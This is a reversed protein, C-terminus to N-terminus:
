RRVCGSNRMGRSISELAEIRMPTLTLSQGLVRDGHLSYARADRVVRAM